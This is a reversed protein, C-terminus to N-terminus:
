RSNDVTVEGAPWQAYATLLSDVPQGYATWLSDVSQKSTTWLTTWLSDIPQRYAWPM